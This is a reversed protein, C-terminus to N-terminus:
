PPQTDGPGLSRQMLVSDVWRDHKYGVSRITGITAFGARRHLEISATNASDGIVAILQRLNSDECAAILKALLRRGVGQGVCDHRIYISDEATFRYAPRTRYPGAYAYGCIKGGREAVIYPYGGALVSARRRAIEAADPPEVEFSALGNLVHHAYIAQIAPIDRDDSRRIILDSSYSTDSM